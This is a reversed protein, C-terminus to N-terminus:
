QTVEMSRCLRASKVGAGSDLLEIEVQKLAGQVNDSLQWFYKEIVPLVPARSITIDEGDIGDYDLRIRASRSTRTTTEVALYFNEGSIRRKVDVDLRVKSDSVKVLKVDKVAQEANCVGQVAPIIQRMHFEAEGDLRNYIPNEWVLAKPPGEELTAGHSFSLLSQFSGGNRIAYNAVALGTYESMFGDFNFESVGAYSTGVVAVPTAGDGGLLDDASAATGSTDFAPLSELPLKENCFRQLSKPMRFENSKADVQSSVFTSKKSSALAPLELLKRAVVQAAFRAGEPRWHLDRAYWFKDRGPDAKMPTYVDIGRVGISALQDLFEQYGRAALEASFSLPSQVEPGLKEPNTLARVPLPLYFLTVGKAALVSRLRRLDKVVAPGMRYYESLDSEARFFWGDTGQFITAKFASKDFLGGVLQPCNFRYSSALASTNSAAL